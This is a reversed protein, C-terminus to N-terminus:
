QLMLRDLNRRLITEKVYSFVYKINRTDVATTFHHYLPESNSRKKSVFLYLVFAKVDALSFPDGSFGDVHSRIDNARSFEEPFYSAM